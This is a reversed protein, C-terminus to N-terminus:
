ARLDILTGLNGGSSETEGAAVAPSEAQEEGPAGEAPQRRVPNASQPRYIASAASFGSIPSM